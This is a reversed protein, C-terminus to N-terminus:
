YSVEMHLAKHHVACLWRVELPKSYDDHHAQSKEAGCVECPEKKLRGSKLARYVATYARDVHPERRQERMYQQGRETQRFRRTAERKLKRAQEPNAKVWAEVKAIIHERNRKHYDRMYEAVCAKCRPQRGDSSRALRHFDDLPKTKKCKTCRKTM